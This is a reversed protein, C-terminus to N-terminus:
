IASFSFFDCRFHWILSEIISIGIPVKRNIQSDLCKITPFSFCNFYFALNFLEKLFLGNCDNSVNGHIRSLNSHHITCFFNALTETKFSICEALKDCSTKVITLHTFTRLNM